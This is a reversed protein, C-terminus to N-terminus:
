GCNKGLVEGNVQTFLLQVEKGEHDTLTTKIPKGNKNKPNPRTNAACLELRIKLTHKYYSAMEEPLEKPFTITRAEGSKTEKLKLGKKNTYVLVRKIDITNNKLNIVDTDIGM